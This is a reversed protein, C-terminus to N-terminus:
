PESSDSERDRAHIVIRLQEIEKGTRVTTDHEAGLLKICLEAAQEMRAVADVYYQTGSQFIQKKSTVKALLLLTDLYDLNKTGSESELIELESSLVEEAKEYDRVSWYSTALYLRARHGTGAPNPLRGEGQAIIELRWRFDNRLEDLTHGLVRNKSAISEVEGASLELKSAIDAAEQGVQLATLLDGAVWHSDTLTCMARFAELSFKGHLDVAKAVAERHAAVAASLRENLRSREGAQRADSFLSWEGPDAGGPTTRTESPEKDM